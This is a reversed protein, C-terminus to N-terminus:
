PVMVVRGIKGREEARRHAEVAQALPFTSDVVSILEGTAVRALVDDVVQSTKPDHLAPGFMCGILAKHTILLRYADVTHEGDGIRGLMIARGGDVLADVGDQLASGGITDILLDAGRGDTLGKVRDAVSGESAVLADDLGFERLRELSALTSGTGIVRAGARHALQVAAVGVGGAAGQVLVTQGAQVDGLVAVALEATGFGILAVAAAPMSLGDPVRFTERADVARLEAHSGNEGFSVVRDGPQWKDVQPGVAVITGASTYGEIRPNPNPPLGRRRLLDAGEISIAEVQMLVEGPGPVPDPVEEYSLVEPGGNERYVVARM